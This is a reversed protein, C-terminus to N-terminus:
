FESAFNKIYEIRDGVEAYNTVQDRISINLSIISLFVSLCLCTVVFRIENKYDSWM